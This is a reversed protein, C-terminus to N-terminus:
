SQLGKGWGLAFGRHWLRPAVGGPPPFVDFLPPTCMQRRLGRSQGRGCSAAKEKKKKESKLFLYEKLVGGFGGRKANTIEMM